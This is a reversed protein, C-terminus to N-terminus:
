VYQVEELIYRGLHPSLGNRTVVEIKEGTFLKELYDGLAMFNDFTEKNPEFDVLIDIDSRPHQENRVYSGFLGIKNIGFAALRNKHKNITSLITNKSTM